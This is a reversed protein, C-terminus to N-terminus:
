LSLNGFTTSFWEASRKAEQYNGQRLWLAIEGSLCAALGVVGESYQALVEKDIRPRRYFGELYGISSLRILNRIKDNIGGAPMNEGGPAAGEASNPTTKALAAEVAESQSSDASKSKRPM